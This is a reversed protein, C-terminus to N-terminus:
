GHNGAAQSEVILELVLEASCCQAVPKLFRAFALRDKLRERIRKGETLENLRFVAV